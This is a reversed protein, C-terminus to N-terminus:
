IGPSRPEVISPACSDSDPLNCGASELVRLLVRAQTRDIKGAAVQQALEMYALHLSRRDEAAQVFERDAMTAFILRITLPSKGM